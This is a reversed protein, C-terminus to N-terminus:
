KRNLYSKHYKGDIDNRFQNIYRRPLVRLFHVQYCRLCHLYLGVSLVEVRLTCIGRAIFTVEM